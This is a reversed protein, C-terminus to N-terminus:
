KQKAIMEGILRELEAVRQKLPDNELQEKFQSL